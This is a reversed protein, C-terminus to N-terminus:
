SLRGSRFYAFLFIQICGKLVAVKILPVAPFVTLELTVIQLYETSGIEFKATFPAIVHQVTKPTAISIAPFLYFFSFYRKKLVM